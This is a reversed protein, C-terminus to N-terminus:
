TVLVWRNPTYAIKGRRVYWALAAYTPESGGNSRAWTALDKSTWAGAASFAAFVAARGPFSSYSKRHAPM